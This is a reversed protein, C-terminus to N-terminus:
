GGPGGEVGNGVSNDENKVRTMRTRMRKEVGDWEEEKNGVFPGLSNKLGDGCGESKSGEKNENEERPSQNRRHRWRWCSQSERRKM